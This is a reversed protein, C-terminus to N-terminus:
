SKLVVSLSSQIIPKFTLAIFTPAIDWWHFWSVTSGVHSYFVRSGSVEIKFFTDVDRGISRFIGPNMLMKLLSVHLYLGWVHVGVEHSVLCQWEWSGYVSTKCFLKVHSRSKVHLTKTKSRLKAIQSASPVVGEPCNRRDM